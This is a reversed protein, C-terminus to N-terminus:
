RMNGRASACPRMARLGALWKICIGACAMDPWFQSGNVMVAAGNLPLLLWKGLLIQVTQWRGMLQRLAQALFQSCTFYQECAQRLAAGLPM